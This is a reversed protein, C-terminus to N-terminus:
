FQKSNKYYTKNSYIIISNDVFWDRKAKLNAM